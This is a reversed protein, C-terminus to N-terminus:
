PAVSQPLGDRMWYLRGGATALSFHEICSGADVVQEVGRRV